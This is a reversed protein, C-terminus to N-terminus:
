RKFLHWGRSGLAAEDLHFIWTAADAGDSDSVINTAVPKVAACLAAYAEFDDEGDQLDPERVVRGDVSWGCKEFANVLDVKHCTWCVQGDDVLVLPSRNPHNAM